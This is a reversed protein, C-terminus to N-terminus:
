LDVWRLDIITEGSRAMGIILHGAHRYRLEERFAALKLADYDLSGGPKKLEIVVLNFADSDRRHVIIDPFVTAARIDHDTARRSPLRLRKPDGHHRNYEVDVHLHAPVDRAIYLALQHTLARETVGLSLLEPQERALREAAARVLRDAEDRTM